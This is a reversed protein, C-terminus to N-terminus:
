RQEIQNPDLTELFLTDAEDASLSGSAVKELLERLKEEDTLDADEVTAIPTTAPDQTQIFKALAEITPHDYLRTAELHLGFLENINSVWEVGVVSDLGLDIFKENEDIESVELYLVEALLRTLQPKLNQIKATQRSNQNIDGTATRKTDPQIGALFTGLQSITPYDYLRTAGLSVGFRDNIQSVWEVGVVSDLGLDVFKEHDDIEETELYLVEALSQRLIENIDSVTQQPLKGEQEHTAEHIEETRINQDALFASLDNVTPYDYLRTANLECSLASNIALVWEVGIVSDLGLDIFKENEDIESEELYLVKALLSILSTKIQDTHNVQVTPGPVATIIENVPELVEDLRINEAIHASLAALTPFDYLRTAQLDVNFLDNIKSVWEVGVVSDLGLDIFKEHDDIESIELFLVESLSSKLLEILDTVEIGSQSSQAESQAHETVDSLAIKEPSAASTKAVKGTKDAIDRLQVQPIYFTSDPKKLLAAASDPSRLSVSISRKDIKELAVTERKAVKPSKSIETVSINQVAKGNSNTPKTLAPKSSDFWFRKKLFPYTPLSIKRTKGDEYFSSWDVEIGQSWQLAIELLENTTYSEQKRVVLPEKGVNEEYHTKVNDTILKTRMGNRYDALRDIVDDISTATFALREQMHERGTLLTAAVDHLSIEKKASLYSALNGTMVKLRDSNRASLVILTEDKSFDAKYNDSKYEEIVIHANGGGAGFSSLGALRPKNNTVEWNELAQQVKFPSSQFDIHPNLKQSHLSPVLQRHKLQLLMKTLGSIGAASEGHGINSKVSGIACYQKKDTAFAKSLGAIEIPDGLSTGTGHAEIYSFDEPAVGAKDIASRILAAQAKPNPVTYGNTKGGHNLSTSKIVGYIQDGDAKAKSLPKLLVAGVGEGPIYGEGGEGFSECRGKASIFKGNS